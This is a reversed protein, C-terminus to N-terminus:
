PDLTTLAIAQTAATAETVTMACTQDRAQTSGCAVPAASLSFNHYFIHSIFIEMKVILFM